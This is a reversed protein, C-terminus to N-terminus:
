LINSNIICSKKGSFLPHTKYYSGVSFDTCIHLCEKKLLACIDPNRLMFQLTELIPVYVFTDLLIISMHDYTGSKQIQKSDYRVGLTTEM